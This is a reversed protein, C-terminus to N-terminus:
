KDCLWCDVTCRVAAQGLAANADLSFSILSRRRSRPRIATFPNPDRFVFICLPRRNAGDLSQAFLKEYPPHNEQVWPLPRTALETEM